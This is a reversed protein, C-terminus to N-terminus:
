HNHGAHPNTTKEASSAKGPDMLSANGSLQMQSDILFNGEIAVAEGIEVGSLIIADQDTLSGVTVRRIEFLGPKTEVYLVSNDGAMLVASRPVSIVEDTLIEDASYGLQSTPILDVGCIPCEGAESRIIQPHRPSIWKGALAPDYVTERQTTPLRIKATAFDGPKLKGDFNTMEVRIAVTRTKKNVMPDVFAVRGTYVVGPLSQLEAEVQQGFRVAAADDPYLDLMLWVISLDVVQFIPEGTKVYDGEVKHKAIVTGRISSTIRLRKQAEGSEVLQEIQEATMGLEGLNDRAIDALRESGGTLADLAPTRRSTLYEMQASFLKPSYLLALDDGQEVSVGVYEAYLDELRGDVYAAITAVREEDFEIRGVARLTRTVEGASAIATQIGLIRRAAPEISVSSGDGGGGSSSEVLEMACVPCKGPEGIPPVCLM